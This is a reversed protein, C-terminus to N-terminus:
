TTFSGSPSASAFSQPTHDSASLTSVSTSSSTVHPIIIVVISVHVVPYSRQLQLYILEIDLYHFPFQQPLHILMFTHTPKHTYKPHIHLHHALLLSSSDCRFAGPCSLFPLRCTSCRPYICRPLIACVNATKAQFTCLPQIVTQVSHWTQLIHLKKKKKKKEHEKYLGTAKRLCM